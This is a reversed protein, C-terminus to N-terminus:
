PITLCVKFSGFCGGAIRIYRLRKENRMKEQIPIQSIDAQPMCFLEGAVLPAKRMRTLEGYNGGAPCRRRTRGGDPPALCAEM